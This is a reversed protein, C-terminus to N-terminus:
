MQSWSTCDCALSSHSAWCASRSLAPPAALIASGSSSCNTAYTGNGESWSICCCIRLSFFSDTSAFYVLSAICRCCASAISRRFLCQDMVQESSQTEDFCQAIQNLMRKHIEYFYNHRTTKWELITVMQRTHWYCNYMQKSETTVSTVNPKQLLSCLKQSAEKM